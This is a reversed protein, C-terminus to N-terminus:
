RNYYSKENQFHLLLEGSTHRGKSLKDAKGAADTDRPAQLRRAHAASM